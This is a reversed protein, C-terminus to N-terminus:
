RKLVFIHRFSDRHLGLHLNKQLNAARVGPLRLTMFRHFFVQRCELQLVLCHSYDLNQGFQCLLVCVQFSRLLHYSKPSRESHTVLTFLGM